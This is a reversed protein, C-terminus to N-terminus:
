DLCGLQDHQVYEVDGRERLDPLAGDSIFGHFSPTTTFVENIHGGLERFYQMLASGDGTYGITVGVDFREERPVVRAHNLIWRPVYLQEVASPSLEARLGLVHFSYLVKGGLERVASVHDSTPGTNPEAASARKFFLDLIVRDDPPAGHWEGCAFSVRGIVLEGHQFAISDTPEANTANPSTSANSDTPDPACAFVSVVVLTLGAIQFRNM